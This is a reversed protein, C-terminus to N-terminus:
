SAVSEEKMEEKKASLLIKTLEELDKKPIGFFKVQEDSVEFREKEPNFNRLFCNGCIYKKPYKSTPNDKLYVNCDCMYCKKIYNTIGM